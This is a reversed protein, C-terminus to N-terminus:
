FIDASWSNKRAIDKANVNHRNKTCTYLKAEKGFKRSCAVCSAALLSSIPKVGSIRPTQELAMTWKRQEM